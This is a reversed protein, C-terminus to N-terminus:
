RTEANVRGLLPRPARRAGRAPSYLGRRDAVYFPGCPGKMCHRLLRAVDDLKPTSRRSRRARRESPPDRKNVVHGFTNQLAPYQRALVPGAPCGRDDSPTRSARPNCCRRTEDGDADGAGSCSPISTIYRRGRAGTRVPPRLVAHDGRRNRPQRAFRAALSHIPAPPYQGYTGHGAHAQVGREARRASQWQGAAGSSDAWPGRRGAGAGDALCAENSHTLKRASIGNMQIRASRPRGRPRAPRCSHPRGTRVAPSGIFPHNLADTALAAHTGAHETAVHHAPTM